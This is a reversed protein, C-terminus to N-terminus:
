QGPEYGSRDLFERASMASWEKASVDPNNALFSMAMEKGIIYGAYRPVRNGDGFVYLQLVKPDTSDLHVKMDTWVAAQQELSLSAFPKAPGEPRISLAFAEAGGESVLTDLLTADMALKPQLMHTVAHHYEHLVMHPLTDLWGDAPIFQTWLVGGKEVFGMNGSLDEKIRDVFPVDPSYPFMCVTLSEIPLHHRAIGLWYLVLSEVNSSRISDIAELLEDTKAIPTDLFARSMAFQEGEGSCPDIYPETVYRRYLSAHRDNEVTATAVAYERAGEYGRIVIIESPSDNAITSDTFWM